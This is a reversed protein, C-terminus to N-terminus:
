VHFTMTATTYKFASICGAKQKYVYYLQSILLLSLSAHLYVWLQKHQLNVTHLVSQKTIHDCYKGSEAEESNKTTNIIYLPPTDIHNCNSSSTYNIQKEKERWEARPWGPASGCKQERVCEECVSWLRRLSISCFNGHPFTLICENELHPLM